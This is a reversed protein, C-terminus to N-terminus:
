AFKHVLHWASLMSPGCELICGWALAVVSMCLLFKAELTYSNWTYQGKPFLFLMWEDMHLPWWGVHNGTFDIQTGLQEAGSHANEVRGSSWHNSGNRRHSIELLENSVNFMHVRIDHYSEKSCIPQMDLSSTCCMGTTPCKWLWLWRPLGLNDLNGWRYVVRPLCLTRILVSCCHDLHASFFPDQEYISVM